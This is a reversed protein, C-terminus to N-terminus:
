KHDKGAVAALGRRVGEQAERVSSEDGAIYLRGFRGVPRIDIIDIQASREAENAALLIYAAPTVEVVLLTQGPILLSGKRFRNILQAQFPTINSIVEESVIAPRIRDSTELGLKDLIVRGAEAVVEPDDAHLALLGFEREVVQSGPRVSTAKLAADAVRYIENGPAVEVFLQAMGVLPIDGDAVTAEYAAYRPQMRSVHGFARLEVGAM